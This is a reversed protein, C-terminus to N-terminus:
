GRSHAPLAASGEVPRARKTPRDPKLRIRFEVTKGDLEKAPWKSKLWIHQSTM